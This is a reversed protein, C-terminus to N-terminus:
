CLIRFAETSSGVCQLVLRGEISDEEQGISADHWGHSGVHRQVTHYRSAVDSYVEKVYLPDLILIAEISGRSVQCDDM